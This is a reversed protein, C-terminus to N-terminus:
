FIRAQSSNYVSARGAIPTPAHLSRFSYDRGFLFAKRAADRVEAPSWDPHAQRLGAVKLDWASRRLMEAIQLKQGPTM